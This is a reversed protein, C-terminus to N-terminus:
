LQCAQKSKSEYDRNTGQTTMATVQDLRREFEQNHKGEKKGESVRRSQRM